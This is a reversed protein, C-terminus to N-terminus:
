IDHLALAYSKIKKNISIFNNNLKEVIKKLHPLRHINWHSSLLVTKQM